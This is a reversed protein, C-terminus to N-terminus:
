CAGVEGADFGFAGREILAEAVEFAFVVEEDAGDVLDGGEVDGGVVGGFDGADFHFVVDGPHLGGVVDGGSAVGGDGDGAGEGM